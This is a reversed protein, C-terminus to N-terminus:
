NTQGPSGTHEHITDGYGWGPKQNDVLGPPGTHEHNSDGYGYGPLEGSAMKDVGGKQALVPVALLLAVVVSAVLGAVVKKTIM